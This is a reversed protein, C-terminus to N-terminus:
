SSNKNLFAFRGNRRLFETIFSISIAVFFCCCCCFFLFFFVFLLVVVNVVYFVVCIM